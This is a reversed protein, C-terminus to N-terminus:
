EDDGAGAAREDGIQARRAPLGSTGYDVLTRLRLRAAEPAGSADIAALAQQRHVEIIMSCMPLVRAARIRARM